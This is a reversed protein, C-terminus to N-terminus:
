KIKAKRYKDNNVGYVPESDFQINILISVKWWIKTYKKLPRNDNVKFPMTKNSHFYKFCEIMQPFKICLSRIVDDDNYEAFYKFSSKKGYPEKKSIFIKDVDIDYINM